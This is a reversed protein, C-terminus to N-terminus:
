SRAEKEAVLRCIKEAGDAMDDAPTIDLNSQALIRKGAEANTGELRVVLPVKVQLKQAAEVVGQAIVDCKMIGGFINIFIGQVKPDSLLISFAGAVKEATAGGGVDLFNSPMGGFAQIIDMTAMALGAGNVMCGINGDLQIYNLDFKSAEVERPDEENLDRLQQIDPHRFLANDDFNIKADAAVLNGSKDVALPNIEVLSCDKEVFLRYLARAIAIFQKTEAQNFGLKAAMDRAQYDMLGLAPDIALTYIKDPAEQAVREIEMGGEASAIMVVRGLAGDVTLSVYYERDIEVSRNVLLRQVVRGEPGTQKTVLTMGLIESARQRVEELNTAFKVGGAKGRGGSHVQAKLVFPGEQLKQAAEVAEEVTFAPIGEPVPVGYSKYLAAAQYEHIKM